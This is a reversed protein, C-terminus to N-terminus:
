RKIVNINEMGGYKAVKQICVVVKKIKMNALPQSMERCWVM